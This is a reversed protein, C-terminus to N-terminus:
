VPTHDYIAGRIKREEGMSAAELGKEDDEIKDNDRKRITPFRVLGRLYLMSSFLLYTAGTTSKSPGEPTTTISPLNM